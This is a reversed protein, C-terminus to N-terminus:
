FRAEQWTYWDIQRANASYELLSDSVGKYAGLLQYFNRKDQETLQDDKIENLIKKIRLELQSTRAKLETQSEISTQNLLQQFSQQIQVRWNHNDNSLANILIKAQPKACAELLIQLRNKIMQLNVIITQVQQTSTGQLVETTLLHSRTKIKGPLTNIERCHFANQQRQWFSLATHPDIRFTAIVHHSSRIFRNLLRTFGKRPNSSFPINVSILLVVFM